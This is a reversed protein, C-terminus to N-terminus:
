SPRAEAAVDYRGAGKGCWCTELRVDASDVQLRLISFRFSGERDGDFTGCSGPDGSGLAIGGLDRHVGPGDSHWPRQSKRPRWCVTGRLHHRRSAPGETWAVDGQGLTFVLGKDPTGQLLCKSSADTQMSAVFLAQSSPPTQPELTRM